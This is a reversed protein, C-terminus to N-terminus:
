LQSHRWRPIPPVLRLLITGQVARKHSRPDGLWGSARLAVFPGDLARNQSPGPPRPPPAPLRRSASPPALLLRSGVCRRYPQVGIVLTLMIASLPSMSAGSRRYPQVGVSLTRMIASLPSMSAGSRRYPQGGIIFTLTIASLPSVSAWSRRYPQGGIIFTLTIASLPSVSAWSRRYPQVGVIFTLMIAALALLSAGSRRYPQVGIIFTLMRASLPSMSAGSRRYPQVGVICALMIASLPSMEPHPACAEISDHGPRGTQPESPRRALRLGESGCVPRRPCSETFPRPPTLAPLRRSAGPPALLLRSAM